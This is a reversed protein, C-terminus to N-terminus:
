SVHSEQAPGDCDPLPEFYSGRLQYIVGLSKLKMRLSPISTSTADERTVTGKIIPKESPRETVMLEIEDLEPLTRFLRGITADLDEFCQEVFREAARPVTLDRDWPHVDRAKWEIVLRIRARVLSLGDARVEGRSSLALAWKVRRAFRRRAFRARLGQLFTLM